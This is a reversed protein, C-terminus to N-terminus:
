FVIRRLIIRVIRRSKNRDVRRGGGEEGRARERRKEEGRRGCSCTYAGRSELINSKKATPPGDVTGQGRRADGGGCSVGSGALEGSSGSGRWSPFGGSASPPVASALLPLSEDSPKRRGQESAKGCLLLSPARPGGFRPRLGRGGAALPFPRRSLARSNTPISRLKPTLCPPPTIIIRSTTWDYLSVFGKSPQNNRTEPNRERSLLAVVIHVYADAINYRNDAIIYSTQLLIFTELLIFAQVSLRCSVSQM